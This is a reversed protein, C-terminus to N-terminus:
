KFVQTDSFIVAGTINGSADKTPVVIQWIGNPYDVGREEFKRTKGDAITMKVEDQSGYTYTSGRNAAVVDALIKQNKDVVVIDRSLTKGLDAVYAQMSAEPMKSVSNAVIIAYDSIYGTPKSMTNIYMAAKTYNKVALKLHIYKLGLLGLLLLLVVVAITYLHVTFAHVSIQKKEM